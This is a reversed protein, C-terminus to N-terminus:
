KETLQRHFKMRHILRREDVHEVDVISRYKKRIQFFIDFFLTIYTEIGRYAILALHARCFLPAMKELHKM